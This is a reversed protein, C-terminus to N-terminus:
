LATKGASKAKAWRAKAIAALKKKVAASVKRKKKAPKDAKATGKGKIKAWRIARARALTKILILKRKHAATM